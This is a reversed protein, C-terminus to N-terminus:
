LEVYHLKTRGNSLLLQYFSFWFGAAVGVILTSLYKILFFILPPMQPPHAPDIGPPCNIDYTVWPQNQVHCKEWQWALTWSDHYLQEYFLCAVVVSAPVTYLVSFVGIRVMFRELKDTRTGDHKMITRIRFLSVFGIVLFCTGVVLHVLLPALVFGRLANVNWLGVFCVGTMVDRRPIPETEHNRLFYFYQTLVM